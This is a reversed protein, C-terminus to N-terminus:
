STDSASQSQDDAVRFCDVRSPPARQFYARDSPVVSQLWRQYGRAAGAYVKDVMANVPVQVARPDGVYNFWTRTPLNTPRLKLTFRIWAARGCAQWRIPSWGHLSAGWISRPSSSRSRLAFRRCTGCRTRTASRASCRTRCALGTSGGAALPAGTPHSTM